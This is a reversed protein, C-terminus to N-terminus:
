STLIVICNKLILHIDSSDTIFFVIDMKFSMQLTQALSYMKFSCMMIESVPLM